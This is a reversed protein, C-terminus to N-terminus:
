HSQGHHWPLPHTDHLSPQGALTPRLVSRLVAIAGRQSERLPFKSPMFECDCLYRLGGRSGKAAFRTQTRKTNLQGLFVWMGKGWCCWNDNIRKDLGISEQNLNPSPHKRWWCGMDGNQWSDSWKPLFISINETWAFLLTRKAVGNWVVWKDHRLM